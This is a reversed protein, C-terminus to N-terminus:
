PKSYISEQDVTYTIMFNTLAEELNSAVVDCYWGDIRVELKFSQPELVPTSKWKGNADVEMISMTGRHQERWEVWEPKKGTIKEIVEAIMADRVPYPLWKLAPDVEEYISRAQSFVNYQPNFLLYM